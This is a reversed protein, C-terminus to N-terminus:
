SAADVNYCDGQFYVLYAIQRNNYMPSVESVKAINIKVAVGAHLLFIGSSTAKTISSPGGCPGPVVSGEDAELRSGASWLGPM